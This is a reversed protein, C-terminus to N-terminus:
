TSPEQGGARPSPTPPIFCARYRHVAAAIDANEFVGGIVAVMDAGAAVALSANEPTIGGIAVVPLGFGRAQGLISLPMQAADPKTNSAFAAGFALYSAGERAASEARHLDGYCSIGLIAQPGLAERAPALDGDTAGLHAGDAEIDKALQWDDNIILSTDYEACLAKLALAQQRRLVADVQKNRYQLLAVGAALAPRVRVLLRDTNAEDPTLLYLGRRPWTPSPKMDDHPRSHSLSVDRM